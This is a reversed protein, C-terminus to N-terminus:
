VVGPPADESHKIASAIDAVIILAGMIFSFLENISSAVVKLLREKEGISYIPSVLKLGDLTGEVYALTSEYGSIINEAIKKVQPDHLSSIIDEKAIKVLKEMTPLAISLAEDFKNEALYRSFKETFEKMTKDLEELTTM